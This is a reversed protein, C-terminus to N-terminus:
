YTFPAILKTDGVSINIVLKMIQVHFVKKINVNVPIVATYVHTITDPSNSSIFTKFQIFFLTSFQVTKIYLRVTYVSVRLTFYCEM